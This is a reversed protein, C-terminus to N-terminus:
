VAVDRQCINRPSLMLRTAQWDPFAVWGVRPDAELFEAVRQANQSHKQMRLPLTELGQLFLFSNFPSEAPGLDRLMQARVKTAFAAAGFDNM